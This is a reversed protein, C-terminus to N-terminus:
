ANKVGEEMYALNGQAITMMTKGFLRMGEFPTARGMSLFRSSDVTFENKLDIVTLNATEGDGIGCDLGFRKSPNISMLEVLKELTIVGTKVLKSYMVSFATEIGVIGM